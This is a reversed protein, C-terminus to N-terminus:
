INFNVKEVPIEIGLDGRAVMLGDAAEIIDDINECGEGNEIKAVVLIHRGAEDGLADRVQQVGNADRIFSAFVVDVGQPILINLKLDHL